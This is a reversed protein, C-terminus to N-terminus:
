ARMSRHIADLIKEQEEKGIGADELSERTGCDPCIETKNDRRSLAPPADYEKGCVPCIRKRRVKRCFDAGYCIGLGSGNDWNVHITGIDDVFAVTGLTGAPPSQPDDMSVLEVRTGAPYEKKLREILAPHIGPM